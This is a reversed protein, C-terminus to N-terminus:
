QVVLTMLFRQAQVNAHNVQFSGPSSELVCQSGPSYAGLLSVRVTHGRYDQFLTTGVGFAGGQGGSGSVGCNLLREVGDDRVFVFAIHLFQGSKNTFDVRLDVSSGVGINTTSGPQITVGNVKLDPTTTDLHSQISGPSTPSGCASLVLFLALYLLHRSM